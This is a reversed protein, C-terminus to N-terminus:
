TNRSAYCFPQSVRLSRLFLLMSSRQYNVQGIERDNGKGEYRTHIVRRGLWENGRLRIEEERGQLDRGELRKLRRGFVRM